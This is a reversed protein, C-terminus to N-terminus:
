FRARPIMWLSRAKSITLFIFLPVLSNHVQELYSTVNYTLTSLNQLDCPHYHTGPWLYNGKLRLILEFRYIRSVGFHRAHMYVYLKTYFFHNFPSGTLAAGTGNTFKEM